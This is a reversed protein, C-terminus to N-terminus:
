KQFHMYISGDGSVKELHQWIFTMEAKESCGKLDCVNKRVHLLYPIHALFPGSLGITRLDFDVEIM